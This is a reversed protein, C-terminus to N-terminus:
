AAALACDITLRLQGQQRGSYISEIVTRAWHMRPAATEPHDGYAAAMEAVCGRTGGHTRVTRQIADIVQQRTPHSHASLDSAFLAQARATTLAETSRIRTCGVLRAPRYAGSRNQSTQSAM